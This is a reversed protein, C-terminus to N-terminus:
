KKCNISISLSNRFQHITPQFLIKLRAPPTMLKHQLDLISSTVIEPCLSVMILIVDTLRVQKIYFNTRQYLLMTRHTNELWIAGRRRCCSLLIIHRQRTHSGQKKCCRSTSFFSKDTVICTNQMTGLISVIWVITFPVIYTERFQWHHCWLLM